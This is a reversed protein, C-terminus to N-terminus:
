RSDLRWKDGCCYIIKCVQLHSTKKSVAGHVDPVCQGFNWVHKSGRNDPSSVWLQRRPYVEPIISATHVEWVDTSLLKVCCYIGSSLQVDYEGGHSSSIECSKICQGIEVMSCLVVNWFVLWRCEGWLYSGSIECKCIDRTNWLFTSWRKLHINTLYEEATGKFLVFV